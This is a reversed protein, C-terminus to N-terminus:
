IVVIDLGFDRHNQEDLEFGTTHWGAAVMSNDSSSSFTTSWSLIRPSALVVVSFDVDNAQLVGCDEYSVPIGEYIRDTSTLTDNRVTAQNGNRVLVGAPAVARGDQGEPLTVLPGRASGGIYHNNASALGNLEGYVDEVTRGTILSVQFGPLDKLYDASSKTPYAWGTSAIATDQRAVFLVPATTDFDDEAETEFLSRSNTLWASSAASPKVAQLGVPVDGVFGSYLIRDVERGFFHPIGKIIIGYTWEWRSGTQSASELHFNSLVDLFRNCFVGFTLGKFLIRYRTPGQTPKWNAPLQYTDVRWIRGPGSYSNGGLTATTWRDFTASPSLTLTIAQDRDPFSQFAAAAQPLSLATVPLTGPTIATGDLSGTPIQVGGAAVAQIQASLGQTATSIATAVEQADYDDPLSVLGPTPSAVGVAAGGLLASVTTKTPDTSLKAGNLAVAQAAVTQAPSSGFSASGLSIGPYTQRLYDLAERDTVKGGAVLQDLRNLVPWGAADIVTQDFGLGLFTRVGRQYALSTTPFLSLPDGVGIRYSGLLQVVQQYRDEQLSM